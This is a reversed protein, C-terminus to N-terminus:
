NNTKKLDTCCGLCVIHSHEPCSTAACQSCQTKFRSLKAHQAKYNKGHLDRVCQHCRKKQQGHSEYSFMSLNQNLPRTEPCHIKQDSPTEPNREIKELKVLEGIKVSNMPNKETKNSSHCSVVDSQIIDNSTEKLHGETYDETVSEEELGKIGLSKATQLFGPLEGHPLKTQGDYLFDLIHDIHPRNVGALYLMPHPHSSLKERFVREFFTSGAALVVRHAEIQGDVGDIVLTVDSFETSLRVNQFSEKVNNQFDPWEIVLTEPLNM